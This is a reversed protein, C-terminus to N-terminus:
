RRLRERPARRISRNRFRDVGPSFFAKSLVPINSSFLCRSISARHGWGLATGGTGQEIPRLIMQRPLGLDPDNRKALELSPCRLWPPGDQGGQPPRKLFAPDLEDVPLTASGAYPQPLVVLSRRRTTTRTARCATEDIGVARQTDREVKPRGSFVKSHVSL